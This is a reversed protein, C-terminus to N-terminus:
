CMQAVIGKGINGGSLRAMRRATVSRWGAMHQKAGRGKWRKHMKVADIHDDGYDYAPYRGRLMGHRVKGRLCRGESYFAGVAGVVRKGRKRIVAFDGLYIDGSKSVNRVMYLYRSARLASISGTSDGGAAGTAAGVPVAILSASMIGAAMVAVARRKVRTAEGMRDSM